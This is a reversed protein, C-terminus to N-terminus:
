FGTKPSKRKRIVVYAIGAVAFLGILMYPWNNVVFATPVDLTSDNTFALTPMDIVNGEVSLAEGKGASDTYTGATVSPTYGSAANETVVYDAGTPLGKITFSQGHKLTLDTSGDADTLTSTRGDSYEVTYQGTVGTLEVTYTFNDTTNGTNGTVTKSVTLDRTDTNLTNNFSCSDVKKAITTDSVSKQTITMTATLDTTPVDSVGTIYTVYVQVTYYTDSDTSLNNNSTGTETVKFEYIGPKAFTMQSFADTIFASGSLNGTITLDANFGTVDTQFSPAEYQASIASTTVEELKFYYEDASTLKSSDVGKATKTVAVSAVNKATGDTAAFASSGFMTLAMAIVILGTMWKSLKKM